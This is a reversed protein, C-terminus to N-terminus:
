SRGAAAAHTGSSASRQHAYSPLTPPPVPVSRQVQDALYQRVHLFVPTTESGLHFVSRGAAEFQFGRSRLLGLVVNDIGAVWANDPDYSTAKVMHGILDTAVRIADKPPVGAAIVARDDKALRAIEFIDHADVRRRNAYHGFDIRFDREVPLSFWPTKRIARMTALPNGNCDFACLISSYPLAEEDDRLMKKLEIGRQWQPHDGFRQDYVRHVFHTMELARDEGISWISYAGRDAIKYSVHQMM